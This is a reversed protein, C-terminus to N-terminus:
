KYFLQLFLLIRKCLPSVVTKILASYCQQRVLHYMHSVLFLFLYILHSAVFGDYAQANLLFKVILLYYDEMENFINLEVIM